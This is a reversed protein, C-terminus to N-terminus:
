ERVSYCAGDGFALAKGVVAERKAHRSVAAMVAQRLPLAFGTPCVEPRVTAFGGTESTELFPCGSSARVTLGSTQGV